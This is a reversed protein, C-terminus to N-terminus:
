FLQGVEPGTDRMKAIEKEHTNLWTHADPATLPMVDVQVARKPNEAKHMKDYENRLVVDLNATATVQARRRSGPAPGAPASPLM